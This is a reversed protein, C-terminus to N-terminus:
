FGEEAGPASGPVLTVASQRGAAIEAVRQRAEEIPEGTVLVRYDVADTAGIQYGTALADRQDAFTNIYDDSWKFSASWGGSPVGYYGLLDDWARALQVLATEVADRTAEVFAQTKRMSKRVADVNEYATNEPRSLIGHDVGVADELLRKNEEIAADYPGNQITPAWEKIGLGDDVSGARGRSVQMYLRDKGRPLSLREGGERVFMRRDAIVSKESLEFENHRQEVLYHIERIFTSAGHCIPVGYVGNPDAPDERFCKLRAVPLGSVGPISWSEDYREAWDPFSALPLPSGGEDVVHLTMDARQARGSGCDYGVLEMKQVLAYRRLNVRKVQVIYALATPTDGACGLIRFRERGVVAHEFGSGTWMPVVIADGFQLCQRLARVGRERVFRDAEADMLRARSSDGAFRWQFGTMTLNALASSMMSEVSFSAGERGSDTYGRRSREGQERAGTRRVFNELFGAVNDFFGAM